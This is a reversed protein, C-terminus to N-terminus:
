TELQKKLKLDTSTKSKQYPKSKLKLHLTGSELLLKLNLKGQMLLGTWTGKGTSMHSLVLDFGQNQRKAKGFFDTTQGQQTLKSM